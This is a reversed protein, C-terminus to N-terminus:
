LDAIARERRGPDREGVVESVNREMLRGLRTTAGGAMIHEERLLNRERRATAGVRKRGLATERALSLMRRDIELWAQKAVKEGDCLLEVEAM